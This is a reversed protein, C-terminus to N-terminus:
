HTTALLEIKTSSTKSGGIRFPSIFTNKEYNTFFFPLPKNEKEIQITKNKQKAKQLWKKQWLYLMTLM